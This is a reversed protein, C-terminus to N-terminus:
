KSMAEARKAAQEFTKFVKKLMRYSGSSEMVRFWGATGTVIYDGVIRGTGGQSLPYDEPNM